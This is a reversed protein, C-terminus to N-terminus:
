ELWGQSKQPDERNGRNPLGLPERDGSLFFSRSFCICILDDSAAIHGSRAM